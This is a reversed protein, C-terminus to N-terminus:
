NLVLKVLGIFIIDGKEVLCPKMATIKYKKGDSKIIAIGNKSGLDEIYWKDNSYNLVAHEIDIMSAYTSNILNVDVKNEGVDLGIVLSTKQYMDYYQIPNDKENLLILETIIKSNLSTLKTKIDGNQFIIKKLYLALYILVVLLAIFFMCSINIYISTVIVIIASIVLMYDTIKKM